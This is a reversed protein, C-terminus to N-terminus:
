SRKKYRMAILIALILVLCSVIITVLSEASIMQTNDLRTAGQEANPASKVRNNQSSDSSQERNPEISQAPNNQPTNPPSVSTNGKQQENQLMNPPTGNGQEGNPPANAATHNQEHQTDNDNVDSQEDFTNQSVKDRADNKMGGGKGDGMSGMDSININSADILSTSDQTQGDSTSAITGDLQGSVSEARLLCFEKLTDVGTRFEEYTCFKTEDNEVFPAILERTTDIMESFYGSDFYTEIFESFYQHYLETYEESSFIWALM